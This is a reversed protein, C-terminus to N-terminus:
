VLLLRICCCSHNGSWTRAKDPQEYKSASGDSTNYNGNVDMYGYNIAGAVTYRTPNLNFLGILVALSGTMKLTYVSDAKLGSILLQPTAANYRGYFASGQFWHNKMVAAPFFTGNDAGGGDSSAGGDGYWNVAAISSVSFGTVPDTSTVPAAAPDGHTNIWGSVTQTNQSFNFSSTKQSFGQLATLIIATLLFFIRMM